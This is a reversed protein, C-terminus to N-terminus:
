VKSAEGLTPIKFPLTVGHRVMTYQTIGHQALLDRVMPAHKESMYKHFEEESM